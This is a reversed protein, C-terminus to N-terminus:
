DTKLNVRKRHKLQNKLENAILLISPSTYSIKKLFSAHLSSIIPSKIAAWSKTFFFIWAFEWLSTFLFFFVMGFLSHKWSFIVLLIFLNIFSFEIFGNVRIEVLVMTFRIPRTLTQITNRFIAWQLVRIYCQNLFFFSSVISGRVWM